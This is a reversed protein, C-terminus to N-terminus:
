SLIIPLVLSTFFHAIYPTKDSPAQIYILHSRSVCYGGYMPEDMDDTQMSESHSWTALDALM